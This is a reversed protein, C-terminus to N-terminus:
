SKIRWPLKPSKKGSYPSFLPAYSVTEVKEGNIMLYQKMSKFQNALKSM